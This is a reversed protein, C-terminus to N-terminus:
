TPELPTCLVEIGGCGGDEKGDFAGEDCGGGRRWRM